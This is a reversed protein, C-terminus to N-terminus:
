AHSGKRISNAIQIRKKEPLDDVFLKGDLHDIEHQFVQAWFGSYNATVHQHVWSGDHGNFRIHLVTEYNVRVATHRLVAKSFGPFSLCGEDLWKQEPSRWVITPNIVFPPIEKVAPDDSRATLAQNTAFVRTLYGIQNAALAAGRDVEVLTDEMDLLMKEFAFKWGEVNSNLDQPACKKRLIPSPYTIIPRIAM